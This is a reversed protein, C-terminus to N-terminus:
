FELQRRQGKMLAEISRFCSGGGGDDSPGGHCYRGEGQIGVTMKHTLGPKRRKPQFLQSSYRRAVAQGVSRACPQM